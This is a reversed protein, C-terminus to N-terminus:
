GRSGVRLWRREAAVVDALRMFLQKWREGFEPPPGDYGLAVLAAYVEGVMRRPRALKEKTVQVYPVSDRRMSSYRDIDKVFQRRDLQHHEGEYEVVLGWRRYVLDGIRAEDDPGGAGRNVEPVELGAFELVARMESEKLSWSDGDLHGLAWLAEDAGARWRQELCFAQLQDRELHANRLLWDGVKIADIVRALSCYAVYAAPVSVGIDDRPPMRVTRHLFVGELELHLDRAVVFRLPFRPGFDLGLLQIRTIGTLWADWPLALRAAEISDEFTMEHDRHRWVGEYVRAFRKGRLMQHTVGADRAAARTFPGHLLDTPVPKM